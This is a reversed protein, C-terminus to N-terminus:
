GATKNMFDVVSFMSILNPTEVGTIQVEVNVSSSAVTGSAGNLTVYIPILFGQTNALNDTILVAITVTLENEGTHNTDIFPNREEIGLNCFM